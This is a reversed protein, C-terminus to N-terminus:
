AELGDVERKADEYIRRLISAHTLLSGLMALAFVRKRDGLGLGGWLADVDDNDAASEVRSFLRDWGHINLEMNRVVVDVLFKNLTREAKEADEAIQKLKSLDM